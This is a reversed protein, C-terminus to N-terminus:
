SHVLTNDIQVINIEFPIHNDINYVNFSGDFRFLQNQNDLTSYQTSWWRLDLSNEAKRSAFSM